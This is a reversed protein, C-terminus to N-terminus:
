WISTKCLRQTIVARRRGRHRRLSSLASALGGLPTRRESRASRRAPLFGHAPRTHAGRGGHGPCDGASVAHSGTDNLCAASSSSSSVARKGDRKKTWLAAEERYLSAIRLFDEPRNEPTLMLVVASLDAFEVEMQHARFLAAVEEGSLAGSGLVLKLPESACLEAGLTRLYYSLGEIRRICAYLRAPYNDALYANCLDLSQLILYSPSTSAFLEMTRRASSGVEAAAEASFHLYAGGTLVPLTKHASDCCLYAEQDMPHLPEELFHLYAGHANDVLVPVAGKGCHADVARVIGRIDALFGLYDPSTLFVAFPPRPLTRLAACVSDPSPHCSCVSDLATDEPYIWAIDFDLLAAAYLLSKHANRAALLLPREGPIRPARSLALALMTRLALSSGETSYLTLATGFLAAANAESEGIIGSAESLM